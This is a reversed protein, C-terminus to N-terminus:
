GVLKKKAARVEKIAKNIEEEIKESKIDNFTQRLEKTMTFFREKSAQKLLKMEQTNHLM